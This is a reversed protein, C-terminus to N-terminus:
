PGNAGVFVGIGSGDPSSVDSFGSRQCCHLTHGDYCSLYHMSLWLSLGNEMVNLRGWFHSITPLACDGMGGRATRILIQARDGEDYSACEPM